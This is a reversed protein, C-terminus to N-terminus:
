PRGVVLGLSCGLLAFGVVLLNGAFTELARQHLPYRCSIYAITAGVLVTVAGVMRM